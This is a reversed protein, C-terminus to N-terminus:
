SKVKRVVRLGEIRATPYQGGADKELPKVVDWVTLLATSAAVLAEMEVGTRWHARVTVRCRLASATPAFDVDVADLPIPHCLPLLDSTHKAALIAATRAIELADGKELRGDRIARLTAPRLRLTGEAVALRAVTPKAGVDVMRAGRSV